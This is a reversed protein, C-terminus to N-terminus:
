MLLAMCTDIAEIQWCGLSSCRDHLCAAHRGAPAGQQRLPQVALLHDDHIVWLVVIASSVIRGTLCRFAGRVRECGNCRITLRGRIWAPARIPRLGRVINSNACDKAQDGAKPVARKSSPPCWPVDLRRVRCALGGLCGLRM